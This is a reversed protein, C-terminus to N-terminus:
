ADDLLMRRYHRYWDSQLREEPDVTRKARLVGPLTPHCALVQERTAHRHYTLYYSGGRRIAMDILRRFHEGSRTIARPTHDVHLNFISCAWPERAWALASEDDREVIMVHVAPLAVHDGSGDRLEPELWRSMDRADSHGLQRFAPGVILDKGIVAKVDCPEHFM